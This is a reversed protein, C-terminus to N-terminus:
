LGTLDIIEPHKEQQETSGQVAQSAELAAIVSASQHRHTVADSAVGETSYTVVGGTNHKKQEAAFLVETTGDDVDPARTIENSPQKCDEAASKLEEEIFSWEDVVKASSATSLKPVRPKDQVIPQETRLIAPRMEEQDNVSNAKPEAVGVKNPLPLIGGADSLARRVIEAALAEEDAIGLDTECNLREVEAKLVSIKSWLKYILYVTGLLICTSTVAAAAKMIRSPKTHALGATAAAASVLGLTTSLSSASGDDDYADEHDGDEYDEEGEDEYEDEEEEFESYIEAPPPRRKAVSAKPAVVSAQASSLPRLGISPRAKSRTTRAVSEEMKRPQPRVALSAKTLVPTLPGSAKTSRAKPKTVAAKKPKPEDDDRLIPPMPVNEFKSQEFVGEM